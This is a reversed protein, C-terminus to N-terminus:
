AETRPAARYGKPVRREPLRMVLATGDTRPEIALTGGHREVLIRATWLGLGPADFPDGTTSFAEFAQSPPEITIGPGNDVVRVVVFGDEVSLQVVITGSPGTVAQEANIVVNLFAQQLEGRNGVTVFMAAQDAEIRATLGARRISFERLALSEEIVERVNVPGTVGRPARAFQMVQLLATAARSSQGRLRALASQTTAPVDARSELVEVTGSIVQLANNVEHAAGSLLRAVTAQRNLGILAEDSVDRSGASM